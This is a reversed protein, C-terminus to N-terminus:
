VPCASADSLALRRKERDLKGIKEAARYFRKHDDNCLELLRAFAPTLDNYVALAALKANNIPQEFWQDYGSYGGWNRTKVTQYRARLDDIAAAKEARKQADDATSTYITHLQQRTERLLALFDQNRKLAVEYRKLADPGGHELVWARAGSKEVAVAFAENFESDNRVYLQQHSLEHFLLEALYIESYGLMTNLIPDDFWGLTSYAPIGGVYVDWGQERLSRAFKAAAEPSFYGRYPVCGFIPFCWTKFQLSLEPAAFVAWSVYDRGTDVYNRYSANDPLSLREVAYQRIDRATELRARLEPTTKPDKIVKEIPKKSADLRLQGNISRTYYSFNACGQLVFLLILAPILSRRFTM